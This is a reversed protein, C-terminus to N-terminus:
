NAVVAGDLTKFNMHITKNGATVIVRDQDSLKDKEDNAGKFGAVSCLILFPQERNSTLTLKSSDMM